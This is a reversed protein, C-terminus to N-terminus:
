GIRPPIRMIHYESGEATFLLKYFNGRYELIEEGLVMNEFTDVQFDRGQADVLTVTIPTSM